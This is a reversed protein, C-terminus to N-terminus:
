ENRNEVWGNIIRQVKGKDFIKAEELITEVVTLSLRNGSLYYQLENIPEVDYEIRRLMFVISFYQDALEKMTHLSLVSIPSGGSCYQELEKRFAKLMTALVPFEWFKDTILSKGELLRYWALIDLWAGTEEKKLLCDVQETMKEKLRFSIDRERERKQFVMETFDNDKTKDNRVKEQEIARKRMQEFKRITRLIDREEASFMTCLSDEEESHEIFYEIRDIFAKPEENRMSEVM